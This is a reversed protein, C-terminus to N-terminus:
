DANNRRKRDQRHISIALMLNVVFVFLAWGILIEWKIENSLAIM